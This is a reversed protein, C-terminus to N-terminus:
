DIACGCGGWDNKDFLDPTSELMERFEMLTIQNRQGKKHMRIIAGEKRNTKKIIEQEYKEHLKYREPFVSLLREFQAQGAKVCFGGCNNHQFGYMYLRPPEINEDVMMKLIDSKSKYPKETAAYSEIMWGIKKDRLKKLRNIEDWQMGYHLVTSQKDCNADHWKDLLDRKLIKSCPDFRSSGIFGVDNFVQWPNRGDAIEILEVGFKSVSEYLFRYLDEDEMKTDAFLLKVNKKGHKEIAIKASLWSCMGGSYMVVHQMNAAEQKQSENLEAAIMSIM